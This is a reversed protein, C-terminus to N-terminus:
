DGDFAMQLMYLIEEIEEPTAEKKGKLEEKNQLEEM